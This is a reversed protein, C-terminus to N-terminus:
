ILLLKVNNIFAKCLQDYRHSLAWKRTEWKGFTRKSRVIRDKLPKLDIGLGVSFWLLEQRSTRSWGDSISREKDEPEPEPCYFLGELLEPHSPAWLSSTLTKQRKFGAIKLHDMVNESMLHRKSWSDTLWEPCLSRSSSWRRCPSLCYQYVCM